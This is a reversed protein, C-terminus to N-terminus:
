QAFGSTMRSQESSSPRSSSKAEASSSGSGAVGIHRRNYHRKKPSMEHELAERELESEDEEEPDSNEEEIQEQVSYDANKLSTGENLSKRQELQLLLESVNTFEDPFSSRKEILALDRISEPSDARFDELEQFENDEEQKWQKRIECFHQNFENDFL